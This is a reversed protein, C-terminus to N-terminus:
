HQHIWGAQDSVGFQREEKKWVLVLEAGQVSEERYVRRHGAKRQLIERAEAPCVEATTLGFMGTM